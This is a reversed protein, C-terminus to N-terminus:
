ALRVLLVEGSRTSDDDGNMSFAILGCALHGLALHNCAKKEYRVLPGRYRNHWSNTREVVWRTPKGRTCGLLPQEGHRRIHPTM